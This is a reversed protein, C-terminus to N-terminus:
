AIELELDALLEISLVNDFGLSWNIAGMDSLIDFSIAIERPPYGLYDALSEISFQHNNEVMLILVAYLVKHNM